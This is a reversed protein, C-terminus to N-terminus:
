KKLLVRKIDETTALKNGGEDAGSMWWYIM